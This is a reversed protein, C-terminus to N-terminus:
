CVTLARHAHVEDKIKWRVAVAMSAHQDKYTAQTLHYPEDRNTATNGSRLRRLQENIMHKTMM